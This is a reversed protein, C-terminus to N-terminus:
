FNRGRHGESIHLIQLWSLGRGGNLRAVTHLARRSDSAPPPLDQIEKERSWGNGLYSHLDNALTKARRSPAGTYLTLAARIAADRRDLPSASQLERAQGFIATELADMMCRRAFEPLDDVNPPLEITVLRTKEAVTM